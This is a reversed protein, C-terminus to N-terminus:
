QDAVWLWVNEMYASATRTLHMMLSGGQCGPNIGSRSPPCEKSILGTGLAGGVRVHCDIVAVLCSNARDCSCTHRYAWLHHPCCFEGWMGASGPQGDYGRANWEVFVAGPTQGKSTFVLDQLEFTGRENSRGIQILVRPKRSLM